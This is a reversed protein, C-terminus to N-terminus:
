APSDFLADHEPLGKLSEIGDAPPFQLDFDYRTSKPDYFLTSNTGAEFVQVNDYIYACATQFAPMNYAGVSFVGGSSMVIRVSLLSLDASSYVPLITVVHDLNIISNGIQVWKSPKSESM